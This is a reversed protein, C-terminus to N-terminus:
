DYTERNRANTASVEINPGISPSEGCLSGKNAAATGSFGINIPINEWVLDAPASRLFCHFSKKSAGGSARKTILCLSDALKHHSRDHITLLPFNLTLRVRATRPGGFLHDTLLSSRGHKYRQLQGGPATRESNTRINPVVYPKFHFTTTYERM